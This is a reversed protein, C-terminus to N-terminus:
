ARGTRVRDLFTRGFRGNPWADCPEDCLVAALATLTIDSNLLFETFSIKLKIKIRIRILDIHLFTM